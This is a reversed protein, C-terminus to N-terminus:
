EATESVLVQAKLPSKKIERDARNLYREALHTLTEIVITIAWYLIGAGLFVELYRWNFQAFINAQGTIEVLTVFFALSSSHLSAILNTSFNPIFIRIAEPFIVRRFVMGGTMGLSYGAEIEGKDVAELGSRITESLFASLNLGLAFVVIVFIPIQYSRFTWGFHRALMDYFLPIVYYGLYLQLIVPTGRLFSMLGNVIHYLIRVKHIKILAFLVGVVFGFGISVGTVALTMPVKKVLSIFGQLFIPFDFM